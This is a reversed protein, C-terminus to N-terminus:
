TITETITEIITETVPDIAVESAIASPIRPRLLDSLECVEVAGTVARFVCRQGNPDVAFDRVDYDVTVPGLERGSHLDTVVFLRPETQTMAIARRTAIRHATGPAACRQLIQGNGLSVTLLHRSSSGAVLLTVAKGDAMVSGGLVSTNPPLQITLGSPLALRAGRAVVHRRGTLPILVDADSLENCLLEGFDDFISLAPTSMWVAAPPGCPAAVLMAPSAFALPCPEGIVRGTVDVRVLQDDRTAIWLQEDFMAIARVDAHPLRATKSGELDVMAIADPEVVALRRGARDFGLLSGTLSIPTTRM